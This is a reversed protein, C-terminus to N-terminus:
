RRTRPWNRTTRRGTDVCLRALARASGVGDLTAYLWRSLPLEPGLPARGVGGEVAKIRAYLVSLAQREGYGWVLRAQHDESLLGELDIPRM